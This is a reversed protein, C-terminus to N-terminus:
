SHEASRTAAVAAHLKHKFTLADHVGEDLVRRVLAALQPVDVQAPAVSELLRQLEQVMQFRDAPPFADFLCILDVKAAGMPSRALSQKLREIYREYYRM